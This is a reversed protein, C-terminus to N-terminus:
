LPEPFLRKQGTEESTQSMSKELMIRPYNVWCSSGPMWPGEVKNSFGSGVETIDQTRVTVTM